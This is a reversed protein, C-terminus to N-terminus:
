EEKALGLNQLAWGSEAKVAWTSQDVTVGVLGGYFMTDYKTGNDDLLMPASVLSMPFDFEDIGDGGKQWDVFENRAMATTQPAGNVYPFFANVWGSVSGQGGSGYGKHKYVRCWFDQDPKGEAAAIFQDIVPLLNDTWWSLGFESLARVRDHVNRWDDPTGEITVQGLGCCLYGKYSFYHKMAGMLSVEAAVKDVQRTTTFDNVILDHKKGIHDKIKESFGQVFYEWVNPMSRSGFMELEVKGEHQVFHHRLGEPDTDIHHTLGLLCTLWVNDPTIVWPCHYSYAHFAADFFASNRHGVTKVPSVYETTGEEGMQRQWASREQWPKNEFSVQGYKNPVFGQKFYNTPVNHEHVTFTHAM